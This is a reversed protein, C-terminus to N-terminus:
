FEIIVIDGDELVQSGPIGHVIVENVSICTGAPYGEYGKCPLTAGKDEIFQCIKEDLEGTTIGPAVLTQAYELASKVIAGAKRMLVIEAPTKSTM